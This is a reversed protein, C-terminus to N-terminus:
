MDTYSDRCFRRFEIGLIYDGYTTSKFPRLQDKNLKNVISTLAPFEKMNDVTYGKEDFFFGRVFQVSDLKSERISFILQVYLESKLNCISDKLPQPLKEDIYCYLELPGDKSFKMLKEKRPEGGSDNQSEQKKACSIIVGLLVLVAIATRM